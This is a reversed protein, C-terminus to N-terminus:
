AACEAEDSFYKARISAISRYDDVDLDEIDVEEGTAEEIIQLLETFKLSDIVRSEILDVSEDNIDVTPDAKTIFDIVKQFSM